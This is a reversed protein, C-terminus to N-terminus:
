AHTKIKSSRTWIWIGIGTGVADAAADLFSADRLPVFSQHWEDTCGYASGILFALTMWMKPSFSEWSVAAARVLLAGFVGYEVGHLILDSHYKEIAELFPLPHSLSSLYFIGAAYLAAAFWRVVILSQNKSV